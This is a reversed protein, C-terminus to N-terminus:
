NDLLNESKSKKTTKKFRRHFLKEGGHLNRYIVGSLGSIDGHLNRYIVGYLDSSIVGSLDSPYTANNNPDIIKKVGNDYYYLEKNRKILAKKM